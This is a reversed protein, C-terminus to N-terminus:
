EEVRALVDGANQSGFPARCTLAGARGEQERTAGGGRAPGIRLTAGLLVVRRKTPLAADEMMGPLCVQRRSGSEQSHPLMGAAGRRAVASLREAGRRHRRRPSVPACPGAPVAPGQAVRDWRAAQGWRWAPLLEVAKNNNDNNDNSNNSKRNCGECLAGHPITVGQARPSSLFGDSFRTPSGPFRHRGWVPTELPKTRCTGTNKNFRRHLFTASLSFRQSFFSVEEEKM